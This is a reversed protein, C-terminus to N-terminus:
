GLRYSRSSAPQGIGSMMGPTASPNIGLYWHGSWIYKGEAWISTSGYGIRLYCNGFRIILFLFFLFDKHGVLQVVHWLELEATLSEEALPPSESATTFAPLKVRHVAMSFSLSLFSVEEQTPPLPPHFSRLTKQTVLPLPLYNWGLKVPLRTVLLSFSQWLELEEALSEEALSPSESAVEEGALKPLSCDRATANTSTTEM